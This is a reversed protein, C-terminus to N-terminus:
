DGEQILCRCDQSEEDALHEILAEPSQLGQLVCTDHWEPDAAKM